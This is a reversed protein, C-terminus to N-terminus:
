KAAKRVVPKKVSPAKPTAKKVSTAKKAGTKKTPEKKAEASADKGEEINEEEEKKLNEIVDPYFECIIHYWRLMKKMDSIYVKEQDHNPVHERFFSYIAEPESKQNLELKLGGKEFFKLYVDLLFIDSNDTSFITIDNLVLVHLNPQVKFKTRKENLTEVIIGKPSKNIVRFLESKGKIAIFDKLDM